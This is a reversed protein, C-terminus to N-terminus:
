LRDGTMVPNTTIIKAPVSARDSMTEDTPLRLVLCITMVIRVDTENAVGLATLEIVLNCNWGTERHVPKCCLRPDPFCGPLRIIPILRM